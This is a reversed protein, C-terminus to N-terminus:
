RRTVNLSLGEVGTVEIEDGSDAGEACRAKWIQGMVKVRGEPHCDTVATGPTGIMGEAGTISKRKRWRLWIIIEVVDTLLLFGIVAIRVWGELFFYALIAGIVSM